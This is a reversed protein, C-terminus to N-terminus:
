QAKKGESPTQEILGAGFKATEEWGRQRQWFRETPNANELSGQRADNELSSRTVEGQVPAPAPALAASASGFAEELYKRRVQYREGREKQRGPSDLKSMMHQMAYRIVMYVHESFFISLLLAWGVISDPTGEPGGGNFMYVLAATTISGFWTLFGLSDLWPGIGEGRWPTPMQSEVCIKMADTRLEIWNNVLFSVSTLPWVVSFMTLYGYQVIM